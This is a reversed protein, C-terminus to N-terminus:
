SSKLQLNYATILTPHLQVHVIRLIDIFPAKNGIASKLQIIDEEVQANGAGATVKPTTIRASSKLYKNFIEQAKDVFAQATQYETMNKISNSSSAMAMRSSTSTNGTNMNTSMNMPSSAEKVSMAMGASNLMTSPSELHEEMTSTYKM